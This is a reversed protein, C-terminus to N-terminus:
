QTNISLVYYLNYSINSWLSYKAEFLGTSAVSTNLTPGSVLDILHTTVSCDPIRIAVSQPTGVYKASDKMGLFDVWEGAYPLTVCCKSIHMLAFVTIKGSISGCFMRCQLSIPSLTPIEFGFSKLSSPLLLMEEGRPIVLSIPSPWAADMFDWLLPSFLHKAPELQKLSSIWLSM